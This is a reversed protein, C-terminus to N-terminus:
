PKAGRSTTTEPRKNPPSVPKASPGNRGATVGGAQRKADRRNVTNECPEKGGARREGGHRAAPSTKLLVPRLEVRVRKGAPETLKHDRSVALIPRLHAVFDVHRMAKASATSPSPVPSALLVRDGAIVHDHASPRVGSALRVFGEADFGTVAVGHQYIRDVGEADRVVRFAGQELGVTPFTKYSPLLFLVRREGPRFVPACCLRMQMEGVVGGPVVLSFTEGSDALEGKLYVVNEFVVLTEIRRPADAWYSRVSAVEGVIVQGAHGALTSVNMPIVTSALAPSATLQSAIPVFVCAVAFLARRLDCRPMM